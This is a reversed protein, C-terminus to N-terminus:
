PYWNVEKHWFPGKHQWEGSPSKYFLLDFYKVNIGEKIGNHLESYNPDSKNKEHIEDYLKKIHPPTEDLDKQQAATPAFNYINVAVTVPYVTVTLPIGDQPAADRHPHWFTHVTDINWAEEGNPNEASKMIPIAAKGVVVLSPQASLTM